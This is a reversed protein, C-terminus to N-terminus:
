ISLIKPKEWPFSTNGFHGYVATKEYIPKNLELDIIVRGPKLNFNEFIYSRLINEDKIIGTDYTDINISIPESIGIAYSIQVLVRECLGSSVLSKAIWRAAYAGTRDVKSPDKGSFCGGGHAGWGGYTDVIIKRGTLGTDSQPGGIIFKGSPLIFYKTNKTLYKEPIVTKIVHEMIDNRVINISVDKIHQVSMVITDVDTPICKGYEMNYNCTVQSKSDPKAWWLIGNKRLDDFKKVLRHALLLTLPILEKTEDTAYGFMMGQDGAGIEELLKDKHVCSAIENSQEQLKINVDWAETYGVDQLVRLVIAKHDVFANSKIEGCVLVFNGTIVTECAVKANPDQFLHADLIADSIRDCLKDPHGEGVSESTFLM